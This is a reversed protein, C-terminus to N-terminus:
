ESDWDDNDPPPLDSSTQFTTKYNGGGGASEIPNESINFLEKLEKRLNSVYQKLHEQNKDGLMSKDCMGGTRLIRLLLNRSPERPFVKELRAWSFTKEKSNIKIKIQIKNTLMFHVNSWKTGNPAPFFEKEKKSAEIDGSPLEDHEVFYLFGERLKKFSKSAIEWKGDNIAEILGDPVPYGKFKLVELVSKPIVGKGGKIENDTYIDIGHYADKNEYYEDFGHNEILLSKAGQHPYKKLKETALAGVIYIDVTRLHEELKPKYNHYIFSPYRKSYTEGFLAIHVETKVWLDAKVLKEFRVDAVPDKIEGQDRRTRWEQLTTFLQLNLTFTESEISLSHSTEDYEFVDDIWEIVRLPHVPLNLILEINEHVFHDDNIENLFLIDWCPTYSHGPEICVNIRGFRGQNAATELLEGM